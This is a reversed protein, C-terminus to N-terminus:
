AHASRGHPGPGLAPQGGDAAHRRAARAGGAPERRLQGVRMALAVGYAATVGILPAGRVIMDRIARAADDVTRLHCVELAFPLCTQDIVAVTWGDDAVFISRWSEGHIRM